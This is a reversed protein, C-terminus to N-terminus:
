LPRRPEILPTPYSGVPYLRLWSTASSFPSPWALDGSPFRVRDRGLDNAPATNRGPKSRTRWGPDKKAALLAGTM